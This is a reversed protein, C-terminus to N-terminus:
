GGKVRNGRDDMLPMDQDVQTWNIYKRGEEVLWASGRGPVSGYRKKCEQKTIAEMGKTTFRGNRKKRTFYQVCGKVKVIGLKFPTVDITALRSITETDKSVFVPKFM